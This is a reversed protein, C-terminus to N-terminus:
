AAYPAVSAPRHVGGRGDVVLGTAGATELVAAAGGVGALVAATALVEARWADGTIVTVAAVDTAAPRATAPDILHHRVEGGVTWRRQMPSSTALGGADFSLTAVAPGGDDFPDSVDVVWPGGGPARGEARLDGGLSVCAGTAGEALMSAVTLDAALGKGIGGPDFGAGPPLAVTGIREDVVIGAAGMSMGCSPRAAATGVLWEFPRDYGADILPGLATPDFRGGTASWGSLALRVLLVTDSSVTLPRGGSRNLRSVESDPRFRSWRAELGAIRDRAREAAGDPGGVAVIHAWTGMAAFRLETAM